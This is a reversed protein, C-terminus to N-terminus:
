NNTAPLSFKLSEIAIWSLKLFTEKVPPLERMEMGQWNASLVEHRM